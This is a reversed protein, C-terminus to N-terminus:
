VTPRLLPLLITFSAGSEPANEVRITGGHAEVAQRVIALGLGTGSSKTSFYPEFLRRQVEPALGPGTDRIFLVAHTGADDPRVGLTLRGGDAMAQLANEVLNVVARGLVRRDIAAVPTPRYEEHWEIGPAPAARYPELTDRMFTVPDQAEPKLAPLRAYTSFEGAITHLSRVQKVITDLCAEIDPSPLVGRDLLLRRMHEGSLQIPTLPNKIEHAIVRAMEAWAALQNSRMLDTVDDLLVLAGVDRGTAGELDVRVVQYRRPVDERKLDVEVPRGSSALGALADALPRLEERALLTEQLDAGELRTGESSGLLEEAAPNATIIRGRNDISIVGTTDHFLLTEMYDRQSQLDSRQRELASGMANFGKVLEAVEDASRPALRTSYDGASIRDTAAVLERVPRAVSSALLAAAAALLGFLTVTALLIMEAVRATAEAIQLQEQALPVAVVRDRSAGTPTRARAYAVPMTGLGLPTRLVLSPMGQDILSEQVAGVLRQPLLGTIFLEPKSSALLSGNEYVHIEQGVLNQLWYLLPDNVDAGGENGESQMAAYDEVVSRAIRVLHTAESVLSADARREIYGRLFLALGVLPIGAAILTAALLKRYISRRLERGLVQLGGSRRVRRVLALSRLLLLFLFALLEVRIVSALRGLFGLRPLLLLHLRHLDDELTFGTYSTAGAVVDVQEGGEAAERLKASEAPPHALTTLAVAGAADYLVYNLGAPYERGSVPPGPGLASLYPQSWPLFPLNDPEDLVHAVIFGLTEGGRSFALEAHILTNRKATTPAFDESWISVEGPKAEANLFTKEDLEPLGFGFSSITDGAPTYFALSSRYGSHFLESEVWSRYAMEQSNMSTTPDNPDRRLVREEIERMAAPLIMWRRQTQEAVAPALESSLQELAIRQTLDQLFLSSAAVLLALAVAVALRPATHFNGIKRRFAVTRAWLEAAGILFLLLGVWLMLREDWTLPAPRAMLPFRCNRAMSASVWFSCVTATTAAAASLSLALFRRTTGLTALYRRLSVAALYFVGATLVLDAPSAFLELPGSSGYLTASGLDRPFLRAPIQQWALLWRGVVLAVIAILFGGLSRTRATWNPVTLLILISFVAAWAGGAKRHKAALHEPSIPALSAAALIEGSPARLWFPTGDSLLRPNPPPELTAFDVRRERILFETDQFTVEVRARNRVEAPILDLFRKEALATDIVVSVLGFRGDSDPGARVLLRTWIGDVRITWRPWDSATFRSPPAAPSGHWSLFDLNGDLIATGDIRASLASHGLAPPGGRDASALTAEAARAAQELLAEFADVLQQQQTQIPQPQFAPLLQLAGVSVAIAFLFPVFLLLFLVTRPYALRGVGSSM